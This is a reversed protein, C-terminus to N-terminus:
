NIRYANFDAIYYGLTNPRSKIDQAVKAYAIIDIKEGFNTSISMKVRWTGGFNNIDGVPSIRISDINPTWYEGSNFIDQYTPLINEKFRTFLKESSMCFLECPKSGDTIACDIRECSTDWISENLESEDSILFWNQVFKWVVSEQIVQNTTMKIEPHGNGPKVIQWEDNVGGTALIYPEVRASRITWVLIGCLFIIILFASM